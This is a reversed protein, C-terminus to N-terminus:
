VQDHIYRESEPEDIMRMSMYQCNLIEDVADNNTSQACNSNKNIIHMPILFNTEWWCGRDDFENVM